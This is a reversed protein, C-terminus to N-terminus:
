RSQSDVLETYARVAAAERDLDITVPATDDPNASYQSASVPRGSPATGWVQDARATTTAPQAAAGAPVDAERRARRRSLERVADAAGFIVILDGFSVVDDVLPVPLVDGLVPLADAPTELHRPGTLEVTAVEDPAIMGAEVMASARVPVGGNVSVAVLNLLLGLGVVAIGTIHRNAMAVTILVALSAALCLTAATGDLLAAMANLLAGFALLPIREMHPRVSHAGAPPRSLGIALGIVVAIVLLVVRHRYRARRALLRVVVTPRM